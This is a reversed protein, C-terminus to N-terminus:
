DSVCHFVRVRAYEDFEGLNPVTHAELETLCRYRTDPLARVRSDAVYVERAALTASALLGLNSRDYLVDAMLLVDAIGDLQTLEAVTEVAEGNLAANARTAARAAPDNDVAVVRAAGCRKAVIAAIGSGAGFDVVTRDRVWHPNQVLLRALGLGSGWCFAWYAPAQIVDRMVDPPLPGLPFDPAILGLVVDACDPLAQPTIRGM